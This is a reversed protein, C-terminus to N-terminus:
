EGLMLFPAALNIGIFEVGCYIVMGFAAATGMVASLTGLVGLWPKSRVWDLMMCSTVSFLVMILFTTSFFPIVTRTNRELEIDLTRSAFRATSIYQFVGTDEAEGVKDLFGQEWIGGRCSLFCFLCEKTFFLLM